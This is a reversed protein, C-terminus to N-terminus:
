RASVQAQFMGPMNPWYEANAGAIFVCRSESQNLAWTSATQLNAWDTIGKRIRPGNEDTPRVMLHHESFRAQSAFAGAGKWSVALAMSLRAKNHAADLQTGARPIDRTFAGLLDTDYGSAREVRCGLASELLATIMGEKGYQTLLAVQRGPCVSGESSTTLM